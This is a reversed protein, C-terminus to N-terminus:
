ASRFELAFNETGSRTQFGNWGAADTVTGPRFTMVYLHGSELNSAFTLEAAGAAPVAIGCLLLMALLASVWERM